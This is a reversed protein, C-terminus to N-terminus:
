GDSEDKTPGVGRLAEIVRVLNDLHDGGAWVCLGIFVVISPVVIVFMWLLPEFTLADVLVMWNMEMVEQM